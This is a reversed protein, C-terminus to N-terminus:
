QVAQALYSLFIGICYDSCLFVWKNIKSTHDQGGTNLYSLASKCMIQLLSSKVLFKNVAVARTRNMQKGSTLVEQSDAWLLDLRHM